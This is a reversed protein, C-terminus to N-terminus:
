TQAGRAHLVDECADWRDAPLTLNTLQGVIGPLKIGMSKMMAQAQALREQATRCSALLQLPTQGQANRAQTDGGHELLLQLSEAQGAATAAHVATGFLPHARNPDAGEGLLAATAESQNHLISALLPTMALQPAGHPFMQVLGALPQGAPLPAPAEVNVDVGAALLRDIEDVDGCAAAQVLAEAQPDSPGSPSPGFMSALRNALGARFSLIQPGGGDFGSGGGGGGDGDGDDGGDGGDSGGAGWPGDHEDLDRYDSLAREVDISLADALGEIIGEAFISDEELIAQLDDRRIGARCFPLLADPHGGQRSGPGTARPHFYDPCSNFQDLLQGNDFLWYCAIDSDHVLFAVAPVQLDDSLGGALESLWAEDQDSAREEYLSIWGQQAPLLRFRTVGRHHLATTLGKFDTMRFHVNACFLGM